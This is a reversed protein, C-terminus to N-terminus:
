MPPGVSKISVAPSLETATEEVRGVAAANLASHVSALLAPLAAAEVRNNSVYASVVDATLEILMDSNKTPTESIDM